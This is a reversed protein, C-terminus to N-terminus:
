MVDCASHPWESVARAEPRVLPLGKERRDASFVASNLILDMTNMLNSNQEVTERVLARTEESESMLLAGRKELVSIKDEDSALM